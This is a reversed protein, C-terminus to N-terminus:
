GRVEAQAQALVKDYLEARDADVPKHGQLHSLLMPRTRICQGVLRLGERDPAEGGALKDGLQVVVMTLLLGDVMFQRAEDEPADAAGGNSEAQREVSQILKRAREGSEHSDLWTLLDSARSISMKEAAM